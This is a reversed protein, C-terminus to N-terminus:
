FINEWLMEELFYYQEEFAKDLMKTIVDEETMALVLFESMDFLGAVACIPDLVDILLIGKDGIYKDQEAIHDAQIPLPEFPISLFKEIDKEDKVKHETQWAVHLGKDNRFTQTLDGKPTTLTVYTYTTNNETKQEIHTHEEVYKNATGVTTMYLCDAKERVYEMLPMYSPEHNWWGSLYSGYIEKSIFEKIADNSKKQERPDYHWGTMDYTSVPVRDPIKHQIVNMLRERSTM